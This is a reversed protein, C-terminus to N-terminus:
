LEIALFDDGEPRAKAAMTKGGALVSAEQVSIQNANLWITQTARNIKVPIQISGSFEAKDPDLTLEVRYKEPVVNQAEALRLKPAATLTCCICAFLLARLM